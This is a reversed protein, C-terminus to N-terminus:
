RRARNAEGSRRRHRIDAGQEAFAARGQGAHRRRRDPQRLRAIAARSTAGFSGTIGQVLVRTQSHRPHVHHPNPKHIIIQNRDPDFILAMRCRADPWRSSPSSSARRACTRSRSTSIRSKSRSRPGHDGAEMEARRDLISCYGGGIDYEALGHWGARQLWARIEPGLVNEYFADRGLWTPSRIHRSHSSQM